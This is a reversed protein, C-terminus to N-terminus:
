HRGYHELEKPSEPGDSTGPLPTQLQSLGGFPDFAPAIPESQVAFPDASGALSARLGGTSSSGGDLAFIDSFLTDFISGSQQAELNNVVIAAAESSAISHAAQSGPRSVLATPQTSNTESNRNINLLCDRLDDPSCGM